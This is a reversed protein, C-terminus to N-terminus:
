SGRSIRHFDVSRFGEVFEADFGAPHGVVLVGVSPLARRSDAPHEAEGGALNVGGDIRPGSHQGGALSTILVVTKALPEGDLLVTRAERNAEEVGAVKPPGADRGM